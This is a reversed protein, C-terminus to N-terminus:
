RNRNVNKNCKTNQYVTTSNYHRRGLRFEDTEILL